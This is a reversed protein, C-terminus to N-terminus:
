RDVGPNLDRKRVVFTGALMDGLRQRKPNNAAVIGAPLGGFLFPDIEIVRAVTRLIGKVLGPSEGNADVVRIQCVWKGFTQGLLGELLPYYVIYFVACLAISVPMAYQPTLVLVTIIVALRLIIDIALAAWRQVIISMDYRSCILEPRENM